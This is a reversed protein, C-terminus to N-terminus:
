KKLGFGFKLDIDKMDKGVFSPLDMKKMGIGIELEDILIELKTLTKTDNPNNHITQKQYARLAELLLGYNDKAILM